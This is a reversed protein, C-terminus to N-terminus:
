PMRRNVEDVANDCAKKIEAIVEPYQENIVKRVLRGPRKRRSNTVTPGLRENAMSSLRAGRGPDFTPGTKIKTGNGLYEYMAAIRADASSPTVIVSAGRRRHTAQVQSWAPWTPTARWGSVPPDSKASSRVHAALNAGIQGITRKVERAVSPELIALAKLAEDGGAVRVKMDLM